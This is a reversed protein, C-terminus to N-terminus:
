AVGACFCSELQQLIVRIVIVLSVTRQVPGKRSGSWAPGRVLERWGKTGWRGQGQPGSTCPSSKLCPFSCAFLPFGPHGAAQQDTCGDGSSPWPPWAFFSQDDGCYSGDGGTILLAPVM